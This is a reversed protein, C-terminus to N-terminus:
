QSFIWVKIMDLRALINRTKLTLQNSNKLIPKFSSAERPREVYEFMSRNLGDKEREFSPKVRIPSSDSYISELSSERSRLRNSNTQNARRNTSTPAEASRPRRNTITIKRNLIPSSVHEIPSKGEQPQKESPISEISVSLDTASLPKSPAAVSVSSEQELKDLM